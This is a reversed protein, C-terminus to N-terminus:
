GALVIDFTGALADAEAGSPALAVTVLARQAESLRGYIFDGANGPDGAVYMQTTLADRGPVAVMFHIHPTRGPYPVPRITRFGYGGGPGTVMRGFGQFNADAGGGDRPHHYRGMADCQWLDVRAGDIPRGDAALVRGALNLVTGQAPADRGLVMVLDTDADAPLTPPYFPGATQRPTAPLKAARAPLPWMSAVAAASLAGGLLRRRTPGTM